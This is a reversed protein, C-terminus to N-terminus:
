DHPSGLKDAICKQVQQIDAPSLAIRPIALMEETAAVEYLFLRQGDEQMIQQRLYLWRRRALFLALIFAESKAAASNLHLAEKLFELARTERDQPKAKEKKQVIAKSKWYIEAPLTKSSEFKAWCSSCFDRRSIEQNEEVLISYYISGPEITEQGAACLTSRKPINVQLFPFTM